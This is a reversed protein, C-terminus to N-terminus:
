DRMLAGAPLPAVPVMPQSVRGMMDDRSTIKPEEAAIDFSERVMEGIEEFRDRAEAYTMANFQEAAQVIGAAVVDSDAMSDIVEADLYAHQRDTAAHGSCLQLRRRTLM